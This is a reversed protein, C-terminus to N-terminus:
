LRRFGERDLESWVRAPGRGRVELGARDAVQPPRNPRPEPRRDDAEIVVAVAPRVEEQDPGHDLVAADAVQQQPVVAPPHKGVHRGGSPERAGSRTQATGRSVKVIVTASIEENGPGAFM